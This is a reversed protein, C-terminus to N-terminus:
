KTRRRRVVMAVIGSGLLTLTTPEPVAPVEDGYTYSFDDITYNNGGGTTTVLLVKAIEDSGFSLSLFNDAGTIDPAEMSGLLQDDDGFAELTMQIGAHYMSVSSADGTLFDVETTDLQGVAKETGSTAPYTGSNGNYTIFGNFYPSLPDSSYSGNVETLNPIDDFTITISSAFAAPTTLCALALALLWKTHM